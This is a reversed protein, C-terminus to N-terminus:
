GMKRVQLGMKYNHHEADGITQLMSERGLPNGGGKYGWLWIWEEM